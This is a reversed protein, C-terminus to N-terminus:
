EHNQSRLPVFLAGLIWEGCAIKASSVVGTHAGCEEYMAYYPTYKGVEEGETMYPKVIGKGGCYRCKRLM